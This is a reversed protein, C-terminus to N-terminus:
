VPVRKLCKQLLIKLGNLFYKIKKSKQQFAIFQLIKCESMKNTKRTFQQFNFKGKKSRKPNIEDVQIRAAKVRMIRSLAFLKKVQSDKQAKPIKAHLLQKYITPSISGEEEGFIM